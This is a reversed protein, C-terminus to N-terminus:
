LLNLIKERYKVAFSIKKEQAKKRRAWYQNDPFRTLVGETSALFKKQEAIDADILKLIYKKM